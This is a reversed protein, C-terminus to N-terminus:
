GPEQGGAELTWRWVRKADPEFEADRLARELRSGNLAGSAIELNVQVDIDATGAHAAGSGSCLLEPVLGGPLVFDDHPQLVLEGPAAEVASDGCKARVDGRRQPTIVVGSRLQM